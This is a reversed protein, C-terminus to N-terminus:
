LSISHARLVVKAVIIGVIAIAAAALLATVIVTETTYGGDPRGSPRSQAPWRRARTSTTTLLPAVTREATLTARTTAVRRTLTTLQQVM